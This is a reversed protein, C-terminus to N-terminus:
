QWAPRVMGVMVSLVQSALITLEAVVQVMCLQLFELMKVLAAELEGCVVM